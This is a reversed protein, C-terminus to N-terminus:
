NQYADWWLMFSLIRWMKEINYEKNRQKYHQYKALEGAVAPANLCPIAAVRENSLHYTFMQDLDKRFWEFLPISFGQKRREFFEKPLYRQLLQRM